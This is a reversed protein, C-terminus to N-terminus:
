FRSVMRINQSRRLSVSGMEHFLQNVKTLCFFCGEALLKIAAYAFYLLAIISFSFVLSALILSYQIIVPMVEFMGYYAIMPASLLLILYIMTKIVM